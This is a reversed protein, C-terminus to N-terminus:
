RAECSIVHKNTDGFNKSFAFSVSTIEVAEAPPVRMIRTSKGDLFINFTRKLKGVKSPVCYNDRVFRLMEYYGGFSLGISEPEQLENFNIIGSVEKITAGGEPLLVEIKATAHLPQVDVGLISQLFFDDGGEAFLTASSFCLMVLVINKM